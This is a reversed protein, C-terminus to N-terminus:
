AGLKKIQDELMKGMAPSDKIKMTGKKFVELDQDKKVLVKEKGRIAEVVGECVCLYSKNKDEEILFQTGRVGFSAWKTKVVFTEQAGLKKVWALFKGRVVQILTKEPNIDLSKFEGESLRIKHGNQFKFIASSTKGQVLVKTGVDLEDGIQAPKGNVKVIGEMSELTAVAILGAQGYFPLFCILMTCLSMIRRM